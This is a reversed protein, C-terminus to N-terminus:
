PRRPTVPHSTPLTAPRTARMVLVGTRSTLGDRAHHTEDDRIRAWPTSHNRRRPPCPSAVVLVALARAVDGTWLWAISAVFLSALVFFAAYRDALRESPSRESQAREVMRVIGAFTSDGATARAVMEFPAGANVVGSCANEGSRRRQTSSEGTLMSEDLEADDTLTGDVSDCSSPVYRPPYKTTM